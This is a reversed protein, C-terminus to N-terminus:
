EEDESLGFVGRLAEAQERAKKSEKGWRTKVGELERQIRNKLVQNSIEIKRSDPAMENHKAIEEYIKDIEAQLAANEKVDETQLSKAMARALRGAYDAKLGAVASEERRQAYEYDRIDTVETPNWGLGKEAIQKGSLDDPALIRNGRKDRVGDASWSLATVWNKIFNPMLEAAGLAPSGAATKEFARMPRGIAMDFPIGAAALPTDPMVNGMGVRTMDIGDIGLAPIGGYPIGKTAVTGLYNSGSTRAIWARLETKLDIDEGSLEKYLKELAQRLDEGGPFGWVGSMALMMLISAAAAKKGAGGHLAAMRYWAEFTQLMYSKFQTIAAGVGRSVTPRNAKGMRYQSEDIAWKAFNKQNWNKGMIERRALADDKLVRSAEKKVGEKEALRAAAIFTVLRNLREAFTFSTSVMQTLENFAKVGKRAGINRQRATMMLDLTELPVFSGEDWADMLAERVDAPAKKPDFFDLSKTLMKAADKYARSIEKLVLPTNAVQALTPVTMLPVQTLNTMASAVVGAIYSFFGIQRVLALEEQPNNVYDRYNSAYQHLRPQDKIATVANDWQKMHQRRSLYGSMGIVYDAVSREFDGTYGPVNDSHFFHRRFGKSKIADALKERVFDWTANDLSSVEALADVDSLAVPKDTQKERVKFAVIRRNKDDGVHEAKAKDIAEQVAPIDSVKKANRYKVKDLPGLEVKASYITKETLREVERKQDAKIYWGGGESKPAPTAGLELMEESFSEPLGQVILRGDGNDLYKPDAISEKVTVIYDGYRAFPVYGARKAQEIEGIFAAVNKIREAVAPPTNDDILELMQAEASKKLHDGLEKELADRQREDFEYGMLEPNWKADDFKRIITTIPNTELIEAIKKKDGEAARLEAKEEDSYVTGKLVIKGNEGKVIVLPRKGEMQAFGGFGMEELTQNRMRDLASDFMNRLDSYAKAEEKSLQIVEGKGTLLADYPVKAVKPKGTKEDMVVVSKVGTNVVGDALEEPTYVTSTLRGLELVKNVNEKGAQPLDHYAQMDVGLEAITEDRTEMQSIGTQYVPTFRKHTAAVTRPHVLLKAFLSMDGVVDGIYDDKRQELSKEAADLANNAEEPSVSFLPGAGKAVLSRARSVLRETIGPIRSDEAELLSNLFIARRLTKAGAVAGRAGELNAADSAFDPGLPRGRGDVYQNKDFDYRYNKLEHFHNFTTIVFTHILAKFKDFDNGRWNLPEIGKDVNGVEQRHHPEIHQASGHRLLSHMMNSTRRVTSEFTMGAPDGIFSKGNNAAYDGVAQYVYQGGGGTKLNHVDIWVKGDDTTFVIFSAGKDQGKAPPTEFLYRHDAGSETKEDPLTHEGYYITGPLLDEIAGKLSKKTTVPISSIGPESFIEMLSEAAFDINDPNSSFLEGAPGWMKGRNVAAVDLVAIKAIAALQAPTLAGAQINYKKLLWAKVAGIIDEVLKRFAAPLSEPSREYEEITYALFEEVENATSVAGKRKAAAVREQAARFIEGARGSSTQAQRYLSGGRNMLTGWAEDSISNRVFAHLAEHLMVGRGRGAPINSAVLHFKGDGAYVGRIGKVGKLSKPLSRANDHLVIIGNDVLASVVPGLLGQTIESRLDSSDSRERVVDGRVSMQPSGVASLDPYKEYASALWTKAKGDWDMRITAEDADTGIFVRGKQTEKSYVEGKAFLEPLRDLFEKGHRKVIHSLGMTGDGYVLSVDGLTPHSVIAEGDKQSMLHAVAGAVDDRYDETVPGFEAVVEGDPSVSYQPEAEAQATEPAKEVEALKKLIARHDGRAKTLEADGDWQGAAPKSNIDALTKEAKVLKANLYDAQGQTAEIRAKVQGPVARLQSKLGGPEAPDFHLEYGSIEDGNLSTSIEIRGDKIAYATVDFDGVKGLEATDTGAELMNGIPDVMADAAEAGRYVTTGNPLTFAIQAVDGLQHNMADALGSASTYDKGNFEVNIVQVQKAKDGEGKTVTPSAQIAARAAERIEPAGTYTQGNITGKLGAFHADIESLTKKAVKEVAKSATIQKPLDTIEKEAKKKRNLLDNKQGDFSRKQRELRKVKDKLQIEELLYPNSTAAAQMEGASMQMEEFANDVERGVNGTRLQSIMSLKKEQTQWMFLDLTDQTAYALVEVAFDAIENLLKNGQRVIRGERQEIDSPKWPVDLHHLAVAREQVNTGAGMKETSGLLVRIKGENVARFLAAKQDDTNYDHIFAVENEPIGMEVLAEKLDDYISFGRMAAKIADLWDQGKADIQRQADEAKEIQTMAAEDGLEAMAVIEPDSLPATAEKLEQYEKLEKEAQKKPTGMDSFVLQTGRVDDYKKYRDLINRAAIAIRGNPDRETIDPRVMRIDMASKRADGMISLMNDDGKQPKGKRQELEKARKAIEEMYETQAQTRPISVPQRRGGKLPPIPFEKGKNEEAYAAKIDDMTVTDAVQDFVRLLEPTNVFRSMRNSAKYGDGSMSQMWVQEVDAFTKAWADFTFQGADKLSQPALYRLMHYMEALSNSVPTGTAFVVGREGGNRQYTQHTKIFMDYARQSGKPQGLGRVNQMKTVFMLNKFLHAEDVFLQDVGIQGFDLLDDMPKDRLTKLRNDLTEKTKALQKVTRKAQDGGEEKLAEIADLVEQIREENFAIEFEADPKIFGYSSHAMIVADWNGTAIKALFKRRNAKEFDKKTATLINAGPYLRYFDAAWQKVLHNPVVIMPKNALGTRKLEMAAAIVTYTKGAGVVHDLLATGDQIIRAVANRQHRRLKIIADPVKGPFRLMSGDYQRTVYNNVADNYARQMKEARDSDSFLWDNFKDKIERAKDNAEDTPEKELVFRRSRTQPDEEYHGVRIDKSNLLADYIDAASMRPTGFTNTNSVDSGPTFTAIYGSTAPIYIVKAKTGEGMIESAFDQYVDAPVWPAGIKGSIEHAPIDEPVVQELAAVNKYSGAATAQALKKRVNGSLYADSLVYGGTAPDIFLAPKDGKTLEDLVEAGDRGLLSGIYDPDIQGREAISVMLADEPSEAKTIEVHKEIVRRDFIPAKKASPKTAKVGQSKAAAASIGPDYNHELSALLPFDPDDGYLQVTGRQNILGHEKVYADYQKNLEARLTDMDKSDAMEAALLNRVTVRMAALDKLRQLGNAGLEKKETYKTTATVKMARGEGAVDSMRVYLGGDKNYYGGVDVKADDALAVIEADVVAETGKISPAQYADDPLRKVAEALMAATDQNQHAVLAAADARYMSGSREMRGLMMSPNDIFYQNLPIPEGGLPDRVEGLSQWRRMDDKAAKSGWESEPRKRLFIIDTTVETNANKAFANNPLRIAGLLEAREGIYRRAKDGKADMFSNSVVMSLVGGERLMDIAKAFFYNHISLGSLHKRGSLDTLTTSSFPPNGLAVDFFGDNANFKRFDEVQVNQNPYLQKAIGGAIREREVATFRSNSRLDTPMLGMFNGVGAGPELIRGGAFGMHKIADYMGSIIEESTYHAYQTSEKAAEWEEKTLLEKLEAYEKSWDSNKPDFAQSLGGWGVYRALTDQEAPTADRGTAQLENLLSIAAVNNRYKTKQGGQGLRTDETIRYDGAAQPKDRAETVETDRAQDVTEFLSPEAGSEAQVGSKGASGRKSRAGRAPVPVDRAGDGVSGRGPVGASDADSARGADARGSEPSRQEANGGTEAGRVEEAPAGELARDSASGAAPAANANTGNQAREDQAARAKAEKELIDALDAASLDVPAWRNTSKSGFKDSVSAGRYMIAIGSPTTPVVGRLSSDGIKAYIGGGDPHYMTLNVEGASATGSENVSVPKMDRGKADKQPLFGRETLTGAVANLYKRTEAIFADKTSNGTERDNSDGYGDIHDVGWDQTLTMDGKAGTKKTRKAPKAVIEGIAEKAEEMVAPTMLESHQAKAEEVTSMGETELGPYARAGEYFSLLYPKVADGFDDVMAKAYSSFDRVGSEIYAGAITMGDVLLEPDIGANLQSGSLKSKMRERAAEVKDSTFLKNNAFPDAKKGGKPPPPKAADYGALWLDRSEGRMFGPPTREGGANAAEAGAERIRQENESRLANAAPSKDLESKPPEEVREASTNAEAVPAAQKAEDRFYQATEELKAIEQDILGIQGSNEPVERRFKWDAIEKEIRALPTEQEGTKAKNGPLEIPSGGQNAKEKVTFRKEGTQEVEVQDAVENKAVWADAKEKTGFFATGKRVREIAKTQTETLAPKDTVGDGDPIEPAAQAEDTVALAAQSDSVPSDERSDAEPMMKTAGPVHDAAVIDFSGKDNTVVRGGIDAAIEKAADENKIFRRLFGDSDPKEEAKAHAAKTETEQNPKASYVTAVSLAGPEADRAMGKISDRVAAGHARVEAESMGTSDAVFKVYDADRKSPNKQAAIYAARDIDNEFTLDFQKNGFAYRPKAGALEKPLSAKAKVPKAVPAAAVPEFDKKAVLANIHAEVQKREAAIKGRVKNDSAGKIQQVLYKLRTRAEAEDMDEVRKQEPEAIAPRAPKAEPSVQEAPKSAFADKVVQVEQAAPEVTEAQAPAPAAAPPTTAAPQAQVEQAVPAAPMTKAVTEMSDILPGTQDVKAIQVNDQPGYQYVQGDTSIVRVGGDATQGEIFGTVTGTPTTVTVLDPNVGAAQEVSASLPGSPAAPPAPPQTNPAANPAAQANNPAAAGANRAANVGAKATHMAAGVGTEVVSSGLGMIGEDLSEGYNVTGRAVKQSAGEGVVEGTADIGVAAAGHGARSAMTPAIGTAAAKRAPATAVRGGIGLFIQDIAAVTLGKKLGRSLAESQFTKDDLLTKINAANPVQKADQLREIVMQEVEAGLETATTGAAMGARGGLIAGTVAGPIAGVGGALAGVGAGTAGGVGVGAAGAGLTPLMNPMQEAVSEALDKPNTIATGIQKLGAVTTDVFGKADNTAKSAAEMELKGTTKQRKSEEAFKDALDQALKASDGGAMAFKATSLSQVMNNYGRPGAETVRDWLGREDLAKQQAAAEKDWDDSVGSAAANQSKKAAEEATMVQYRGPEKADLGAQISKADPAPSATGFNQGIIGAKEMVERGYAATKEGWKKRDPGAFHEKVADEMSYGKDLREKLQKAAAGVAQVPDFPNIGMGQATSDLYQMMGKARGWETPTGVAGARYRSEQHGLAMLVNVPVGYERAANEFIPRIDAPPLLNGAPKAQKPQAEDPASTEAAAKPQTSTKAAPMEPIVTAETTTRGPLDPLAYQQTNLEETLNEIPSQSFPNKAM